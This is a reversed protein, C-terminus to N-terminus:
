RLHRFLALLSALMLGFLGGIGLLPLWSATAPLSAMQEPEEEEMVIPVITFSATQTEAQPFQAALRDEAIYFNLQDGRRLNKV